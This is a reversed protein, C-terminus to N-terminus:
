IIASNACKARGDLPWLSSMALRANAWNLRHRVHKSGNGASCARELGGPGGAERGSRGHGGRQGDGPLQRPGPLRRQHLTGGDAPQGRGARHARPHPHRLAALARRGLQVRPGRRGQARARGGPLYRSLGCRSAARAGRVLDDATVRYLGHIRRGERVSIQEATCVIRLGSWPGGLSRLGAVIRHLERRAHMTARTVAAADLGSAGYEHNALMAFLDGGIHALQPRSYSPEVGARRMEALLFDKSSERTGPQGHIAARLEDARIGGVIAMLTLPQTAGDPERGLDFGCGAFAALDGDGTADVFVRARWAQRGSKSETIAASINRGDRRAAVIRTHLQVAVGAEACWEELVLKMIEPDYYFSGKVWPLDHSLDRTLAAGTAAELRAILDLLLGTKNGADLVYSLLGATWVGGLCGHVEILQTRAGARAAAVAASVGAPGGGAVLVDCTGAVPVEREPERITEM